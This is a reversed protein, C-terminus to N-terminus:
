FCILMLLTILSEAFRKTQSHGFILPKFNEYTEKKPEGAAPEEQPAEYSYAKVQEEFKNIKEIEIEIDEINADEGYKEVYADKLEYAQLMPEGLYDTEANKLVGITIPIKEKDSALFFSADATVPINELPVNYLIRGDDLRFLNKIQLKLTDLPDKETLLGGAMGLDDASIIDNKEGYVVLGEFNTKGTDLDFDYEQDLRLGLRAALTREAENFPQVKNQELGRWSNKPLFYINGFYFEITKDAIIKRHPEIRKAGHLTSDRLPFTFPESHYGRGERKRPSVSILEDGRFIYYLPEGAPSRVHFDTAGLRAPSLMSTKGRYIRIVRDIQKRANDGIGFVPNQAAAAFLSGIGKFELNNFPSGTKLGQYLMRKSLVRKANAPMAKVDFDFEVRAEKAAAVNQQLDQENDFFLISEYEPNNKKKSEKMSENFEEYALAVHFPWFNPASIVVDGPKLTGPKVKGQELKGNKKKVVVDKTIDVHNNKWYWQFTVGFHKKSFENLDYRERDRKGLPDNEGYTFYGVGRDPVGDKPSVDRWRIKMSPTCPGNCKGDTVGVRFDNEEPDLKKISDIVMKQEYEKYEKVFVNIDLVLIDFVDKNARIIDKIQKERVQTQSLRRLPEPLPIGYKDYVGEPAAYTRQIHMNLKWLKPDTEEGEPPRLYDRQIKFM